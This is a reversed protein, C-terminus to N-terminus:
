KDELHYGNGVIHSMKQWRQGSPVIILGVITILSETPLHYSM